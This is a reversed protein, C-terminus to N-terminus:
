NNIKMVLNSTPNDYWNSIAKRTARDPNSGWTAFDTYANCINKREKPWSWDTPIMIGCPSEGTSAIDIHQDKNAGASPVISWKTTEANLPDYGEPKDITVTTTSPAVQKGGTNVLTGKSVGFADHVETKGNKWTIPQRNLYVTNDYECGAACLTVILHAEDTSLQVKIVVDNMDYDSKLKSDEFAYSYIPNNDTIITPPVITIGPSCDSETVVDTVQGKQVLVANGNGQQPFEKWGWGEEAQSITYSKTGNLMDLVKEYDTSTYINNDTNAQDVSIRINNQIAGVSMYEQTGWATTYNTAVNTLGISGFQLYAYNSGTPGNIDVNNLAVAGSIEILSNDNAYIFSKDTSGDESCSLAMTAAKIYAGPGQVINRCYLGEDVEWWCNNRIRTNATQSGYICAGIHVKGANEYVSNGAGGQLYDAEIVGANYLTGGNNNITGVDITGGNYNYSGTGNAFQLTGDGTVIGEPYVYFSGVTNAENNANTVLQTGSSINVTGKPGVIFVCGGNVRQEETINLTGQVYVSIGSGSQLLPINKSWTTGEPILYHTVTNSPNTTNNEDTIAVADNIYTSLDPMTRVGVTADDGASRTLTRTRISSANSGGFSTEIKGDIIAAPKIYTYGKEDKIAAFVSALYSPYLFESTMTGGSVVTGKALVTGENNIFPNNQYILVEYKAGYDGNVTVNVIGKDTMVWDQNEPIYFGLTQQANDISQQEESSVTSDFDHSCATAALGLVIAAASKM